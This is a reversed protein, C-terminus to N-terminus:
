ILATVEERKDEPAGSSSAAAGTPVGLKAENERQQSMDIRVLCLGADGYSSLGDDALLECIPSGPLECRFNHAQSPLEWPQDNIGFAVHLIYDSELKCLCKIRLRVQGYSSASPRDAKVQLLFTLENNDDQFKVIVRKSPGEGKVFIDSSNVLWRIYVKSAVDNYKVSSQRPLLECAACIAKHPDSAAAARTRIASSRNNPTIEAVVNECEQSKLLLTKQKRFWKDWGFQCFHSFECQVGHKCGKKHFPICPKWVLAKRKESITGDCHKLTYTDRDSNNTVVIASITHFGEMDPLL